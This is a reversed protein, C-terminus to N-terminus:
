FFRVHGSHFWDYCGTAIVKKGSRSPPNIPAPPPPPIKNLVDDPIAVTSVDPISDVVQVDHVFRDARLVYEREAQPFKANEVLRDSWLLVHLRGFIPLACTQVGTVNRYRIGDEAPFFFLSTDLHGCRM